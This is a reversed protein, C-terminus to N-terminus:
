WAATCNNTEEAHKIVVLKFILMTIGVLTAVKEFQVTSIGRAIYKSCM